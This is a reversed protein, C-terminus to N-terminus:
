EKPEDGLETAKTLTCINKRFSFSLVSLIVVNNFQFTLTLVLSILAFSYVCFQLIIKEPYISHLSPLVVLFVLFCVYLPICGNM